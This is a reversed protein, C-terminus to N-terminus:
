KKAMASDKAPAPAAATAKEPKPQLLRIYQVLQWRQKSSLQSAYSGMNNKGYHISHYM